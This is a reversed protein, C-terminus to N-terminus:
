TPDFQHAVWEAAGHRGGEGERPRGPQRVDLAQRVPGRPRGARSQRWTSSTRSRSRRRCRCARQPYRRPTPRAGPPRGHAGARQVKRGRRTRDARSRLRSGEHCLAPVLVAERGSGRCGRDLLDVDHHAHLSHGGGPRGSVGPDGGNGWQLGGLGIPALALPLAVREGLITTSTDRESVDVLVRQRLRIREIDARNARLTEEAFSGAEAYDFFARPVRRRAARRLDEICTMAKMAAPVPSSTTRQPAEQFTTTQTMENM